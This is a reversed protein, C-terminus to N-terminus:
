LTSTEMKQKERLAHIQYKMNNATKYNNQDFLKNIFVDSTRNLLNSNFKHAYWGQNDHPHTM